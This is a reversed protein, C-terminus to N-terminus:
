AIKRRVVTSLIRLRARHMRSMVTGVPMRLRTAIERCSLGDRVVLIFMERDLDPLRDFARKVDDEVHELLLPLGPDEAHAAGALAEGADCVLSLADDSDTNTHTARRRETRLGTLFVRRLITRLWSRISTGAAFRRRAEYARLMTEQVLDHADANQRALRMAVARLFPQEALILQTTLEGCAAQEIRVDPITSEISM